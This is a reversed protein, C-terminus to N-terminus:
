NTALIIVLSSKNCQCRESEVAPFVCSESLCINKTSFASILHFLRVAPQDASEGAPMPHLYGERVHNSNRAAIKLRRILPCLPGAPRNATTAAPRTASAGNPRPYWQPRGPQAAQTQASIAAYTAAVITKVGPAEAQPASGGLPLCSSLLLSLSFLVWVMKKM